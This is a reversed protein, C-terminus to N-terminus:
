CTVDDECTVTPVRSEVKSVKYDFTKAMRVTTTRLLTIQQVWAFSSSAITLSLPLHLRQVTLKDHRVLCLPKHIFLDQLDFGCRFKM